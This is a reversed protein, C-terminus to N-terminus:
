PKMLEQLGANSPEYNITMTIEGMRRLGGIKYDDHGHATTVDFECREMTPPSISQLEAVVHDNVELMTPKAAVIKERRSRPERLRPAPCRTGVEKFEGTPRISLDMQAQGETSELLRQNTVYGMFEYSIIQGGEHFTILFKKVGDLLATPALVTPAEPAIARELVVKPDVVLAAGAAGMWQLFTRRNM